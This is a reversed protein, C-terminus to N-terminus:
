SWEDSSNVICALIQYAYAPNKIELSYQQSGFQFALADKYPTVSSLATIKKDFAGKSASFVIRKNTIYITGQTRELVNGRVPISKSAGIRYSM